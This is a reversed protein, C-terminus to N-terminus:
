HESAHITEFNGRSPRYDPCHCCSLLRLRDCVCDAQLDLPTHMMHHLHRDRCVAQTCKIQCSSRLVDSCPAQGQLPVCDRVSTSLSVSASLSLSRPTSPIFSHFVGAYIHEFLIPLSVYLSLSLSLCPYTSVSLYKLFLLVFLFACLLVCM